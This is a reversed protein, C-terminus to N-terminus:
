NSLWVVAASQLDACAPEIGATAELLVDSFAASIRSLSTDDAEPKYRGAGERRDSKVTSTM